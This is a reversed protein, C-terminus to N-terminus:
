IWERGIESRLSIFDVTILECKSQGLMYAEYDEESLEDTWDVM